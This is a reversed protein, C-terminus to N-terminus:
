LSCAIGRDEKAFGHGEILGAGINYGLFAKAALKRFTLPWLTNNFSLLSPPWVLKFTSPAIQWFFADDTNTVMVFWDGFIRCPLQVM